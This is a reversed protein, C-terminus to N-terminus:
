PERPNVTLSGSPFRQLKPVYRPEQRLWRQRCGVVEFVGEGVGFRGSGPALSFYEQLEPQLRHFDAGLAQRYIPTDM